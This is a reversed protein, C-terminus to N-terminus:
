KQSLTKINPSFIGLASYFGPGIIFTQLKKILQITQDSRGRQKMFLAKGERGFSSWCVWRMTFTFFLTQLGPLLLLAPQGDEKDLETLEVTKSSPRKQNKM